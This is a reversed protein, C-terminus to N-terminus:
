GFGQAVEGRIASLKLSSETKMLSLSVGGPNMIV